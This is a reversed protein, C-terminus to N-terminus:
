KTDEQGPRGAGNARREAPQPVVAYRLGDVFVAELTAGDTLADGRMVLLNAIKGVEISGLQEQVGAAEAARITLAELAAQRSLGATIAKKVNAVFEAPRLGGSALAFRIGAKNLAAANGEIQSRVAAARKASDDQERRQAGRYSWGTVATPEPYDVTVVPIRQGQLADVARFGEVAGVVSLKLGFEKGLAIARRIENENGAAVFTPLDGKVVPVLAELDADYSPRSVGRPSAKQRETLQAHRQADYLAQRQYAIVGLLSGPYRGPVTQYGMHLAVPSRVTWRTATDDRLPILASLGRFLGRSPAVLATTIGADRAARVDALVPRIENAILRDPELGVNRQSTDPAAGFPGGGGGGPRPTPPAPLGITSTLDIFGPYVTRNALDLIRADAPIPVNPGVAEILGDRIVITGRDIVGRTVTEIRANTLAWVGSQAASAVPAAALVGIAVAVRGSWHLLM